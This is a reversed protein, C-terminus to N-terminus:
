SVKKDKTNNNRSASQKLRKADEFELKESIAVALDNYFQKRINDIDKNGRNPLAPYLTTLFVPKYAEEDPIDEPAFPDYVTHARSFVRYNDKSGRLSMMNCTLYVLSTDPDYVNFSFFAVLDKNNAKIKKPPRTASTIVIGFKGFKVM